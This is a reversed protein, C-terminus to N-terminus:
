FTAQLILTFDSILRNDQFDIRNVDGNAINGNYFTKDFTRGDQNIFHSAEFRVKLNSSFNYETFATTLHVEFDAVEHLSVDHRQRDSRRHANFGYALAISELDHRYRVSFYHPTSNHTTRKQGTFPDTTESDEYTYSLTLVASPFGIFGFRTNLDIEFNLKRASGINGVGSDATGILIKDIHNSIREHLVKMEISGGDNAFRREYGLSFLWTSEPELNPNGFNIIDDDVNRSAVFDNLDLQSVTRESLVRFQDTSTLDYRLEFRPKMFQFSRENTEGERNQLITSFEVTLSSQLSIKDTLSVSHTIFLEYRDEEVIANQFPDNNFAFTKDLTNFAAEIGYEFTQRGVNSTMATRVISESEDYDAISSFLRTTTGNAISDQTIDDRNETRNTVFLTRLQGINGVQFEIDGGLEFEQYDNRFNGDETAFPLQPVVPGALFQDELKDDNEENDSYLANLRLRAGNELEYGLNGTYIHHYTNEESVLIRFERPTRDPNLVDEYVKRLRPSSEYQYNLGFELLGTNGNYSALMNPEMSLGNVRNVGVDLFASSADIGGEQLVVNYIIGENRIDLGEANVRILEIRKVQTAQIRALTTSMNNTKGSIRRGNILIQVDSSGFGRNNSTQSRNNLVSAGGPINNIMDGLSIPNYQEFYALDYIITSQDQEQAQATLASFVLLTILSYQFPRFM